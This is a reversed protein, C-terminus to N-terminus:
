GFPKCRLAIPVVQGLLKAFSAAAPSFSKGKRSIISIESTVTPEVIRRSQIKFRTAMLAYSPLVSIGLGAEVLSLATTVFSVNYAPVPLPDHSSKLIQDVLQSLSSHPDLSILPYRKFEHWPVGRRMKTVAHGRPCVVVLSDTMLPTAMLEADLRFFEGIGFDIEGTRIRALMDDPLTDRLIITLAPYRERCKAIAKPVLTSAILPTAAMTVRGRKKEILGQANDIATQLAALAMEAFPLFEKGAETLQVTRTSRDFLQVHLQKELERILMSVASQTLHVREAARTFGEVQAVAYFAELQRITINL